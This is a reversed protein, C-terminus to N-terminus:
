ASRSANERAEKKPEEPEEPGAGGERLFLDLMLIGVGVCISSDAVNFAPFHYLQRWHFDLFDIVYGWVARDILNGVAGSVVLSLAVALKRDEASIRRFIYGIALLAGVPVIVFFPVRFSPHADALIGFAAGTNRIYTLNFFGQIVPVSEGLNFHRIVILKTIQDLTVVIGACFFLILYKTRESM